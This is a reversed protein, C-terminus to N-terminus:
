QAPEPTQRGLCRRRSTSFGVIVISLTPGLAVLWIIPILANNRAALNQVIIGSAVLVVMVVVAAFPRVLGGHRRFKARLVSLLAILAYSLVAFPTALRRSIEARWKHLAAPDLIQRNPHLLQAMTAESTKPPLNRVMKSAQAIGVTDSAFKLVNLEHTRPDIQQREGQQLEVMPGDPGQVLSGTRAVITAPHNRQRGDDIIIGHLIGSPSRHQVYVMINRGVPNFVGPELLLAAVRDRIQMEYRSFAGLSAPVLWVNLVMCAALTLFALAVAPRAIMLDSCGAARMVTLERDASLRSYVFLIIIFCTIPLVVAIFSPLLLGTLHFFVIPSLSHQIMLQVFRLSQTMWVLVVLGSTVLATGVVLQHFIYRDLWTPNMRRLM